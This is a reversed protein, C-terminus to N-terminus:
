TMYAGVILLSPFDWTYELRGLLRLKILSDQIEDNYYDIRQDRPPVCSRTIFVQATIRLSTRLGYGLCCRIDSM